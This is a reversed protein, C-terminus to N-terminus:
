NSFHGIPWLSGIGSQSADHSGMESMDSGHSGVGSMGPGQSLTFSALWAWSPGPSPKGRVRQTIVRVVNYKVTITKSLQYTSNSGTGFKAHWQELWASSMVEFFARMWRAVKTALMAHNVNDPEEELTLM